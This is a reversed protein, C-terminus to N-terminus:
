NDESVTVMYIDDDLWSHKTIFYGIRNVVQYGNTIFTGYDGDCYTWVNHEDTNKVYDLEDGYTEFMTGIGNDDQWSANSDLHNPVPEFMIDWEQVDIVAYNSM